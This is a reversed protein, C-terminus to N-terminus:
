SPSLAHANKYDRLFRADRPTYRFGDAGMLALVAEYGTVAVKQTPAAAMKDAEIARALVGLEGSDAYIIQGHHGRFPAPMHRFLPFVLEPHKFLEHSRGVDLADDVGAVGISLALVDKAADVLVDAARFGDLPEPRRRQHGLLHAGVERRRLGM